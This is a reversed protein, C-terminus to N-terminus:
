QFPGDRGLRITRVGGTKAFSPAFANAESEALYVAM